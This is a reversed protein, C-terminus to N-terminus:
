TRQNFSRLCSNALSVAIVFIIGIGVMVPLEVMKGEKLMFVMKTLLALMQMSLFVLFIPSFLYGWISKKLFLLGTVFCFPLFYALDIGQVVLTTFHYLEKPYSGHLLPPIIVKLWMSATLVATIMLFWGVTQRPMRSMAALKAKKPSIHVVVILFDWMSLGALIVYILFFNNYAAMNLWFMYTLVFYALVGALFMKATITDKQAMILACLLLPIGVFLTVYDQAIGQPAVEDPMDSYLGVGYLTVNEGRFSRIKRKGSGGWGFIGVIVALETLLVLVLAITLVSKYQPM